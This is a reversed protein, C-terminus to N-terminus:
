EKVLYDRAEGITYLSGAVCIVGHTDTLERARELADSIPTVIEVENLYKQAEQALIEPNAARSYSPATIIVRKALPLLDRMMGPYDKDSLIGLVMTIPKSPLLEVLAKKLARTGHTNHAGDLIILPERGVVEFRGPWKALPLGYRVAEPSVAFGRTNLCELAALAVAANNVQHEGLLSIALDPLNWKLGHYEFQQGQLSYATRVCSFDRGLVYLDCRKEDASETIAELPEPETVGTVVPAGPKIIGAKEFAIQRLSNGLVNQHDLGITTIVSVEPQVVNTADLRGGLGVELVVIDVELEAYYGMAMATIIEFQTPHGLEPQQALDECLPKLRRVWRAIDEESIDRGNVGVRNTFSQLYPSTYLGVTYGATRLVEAAFAATSGKGNTGAIHLFRLQRHPNGIRELLAQIRELGPKSGFRGISHIYNVAERYNM